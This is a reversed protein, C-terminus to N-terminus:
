PPSLSPPRSPCVFPPSPTPLLLTSPTFPSRLVYPFSSSPRRSHLVAGQPRLGTQGVGKPSPNSVLQVLTGILPALPPGTLRRKLHDGFVRPHGLYPILHGPELVNILVCALAPDIESLM